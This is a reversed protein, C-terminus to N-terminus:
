DWRVIDAVGLVPGGPTMDSAAILPLAQENEGDVAAVSIRGDAQWQVSIKVKLMGLGQLPGFEAQHRLQATAGEAQCALKILLRRQLDRNAMISFSAAAPLPTGAPILPKFTLGTDDKAVGMAGLTSPAQAMAAYGPQPHNRYGLAAGQAYISNAECLISDAPLGLHQCLQAQVIRSIGKPAVVIVGALQQAGHAARGLLTQVQADVGHLFSDLEVRAAARTLVLPLVTSKRVVAWTPMSPNLRPDTDLCQWIDQWIRDFEAVHAHEFLAAGSLLPAAEQNWRDLWRTRLANLGHAVVAQEALIDTAATGHRILRLQLADDDFSMVLWPRDSPECPMGAMLAQTEGVLTVPLEAADAALGVLDLRALPKLDDPVVLVVHPRAAAWATSERVMRRVAFATFATATLGQGKADTLSVRGACLDSRSYRWVLPSPSNLTAAMLAPYGLLAGSSDLTVVSPTAFKQLEGADEMATPQNIRDLYAARLYADGLHVALISEMANVPVDLPKM